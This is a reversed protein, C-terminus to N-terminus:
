PLVGVRYCRHGASLSDNKSASSAIAVVDGPLDSWNTANLDSKFQVRYPTNSIASWSLLCNTGNSVSIILTPQSPAGIISLSGPVFTIAYNLSSLGDPTVQYSGISEGPARTIVLTGSLVTATEGNVFDGYTVTFTPDAAGIVKTKSDASISLPSPIITLTAGTFSVTYNATPTLTGQAIAYPSGAVTEGAARAPTGTLVAAQTDTFQLGSVTFTLMPDSSGYSKTTSQATITLSAPTITLTNGTFAVAYNANAALTGQTIAYPSGAVTEGAARALTGTLVAAQTDTFQLGSVTFTLAPDTAGYSKTKSQTTITLSAPTIPLTNGTFAVTYNANAAL